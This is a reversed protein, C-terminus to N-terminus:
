ETWKTVTYRWVKCRGLRTDLALGAKRV